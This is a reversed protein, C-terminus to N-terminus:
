YPAVLLTNFGIYKLHEYMFKVVARNFENEKFVRELEPVVLNRKSILLDEANAM